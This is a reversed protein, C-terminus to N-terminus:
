SNETIDELLVKGDRADGAKYRLSKELELDFEKSEVTSVSYFRAISDEETITLTMYGRNKINAYAMHDLHNYYAQEVQEVKPLREGRGPSTIGPVAFEAGYHKGGMKDTLSMAWGCHTDGTLVIPNGSYKEFMDFVRRRAPQYGDWADPNYYVGFEEAVTMSLQEGESFGSMEEPSFVDSLPPEPRYSMIIQQGLIQWPINESVSKSLTEDLWKEQATGLLSREETELRKHFAAYDPKLSVGDPGDIEKQEVDLGYELPRERGVIRTDLMALTALKGFTFSRVTPLETMDVRVPMWEMFAKSAERRRATWDGEDDTHNLAGTAYSNNAFEHDDWACIFPYKRHVEQLDEDMRYLAYRRRYDSLTIIEHAPDSLRGIRKGVDAGYQGEDNGYEYIYDGLHLVADFPGNEAIARYGNFYGFPYNSCSAVALNVPETGGSNLTKVEGIVSYKEGVMFRYYHQTGAELGIVDQKVTYDREGDTTFSGSNIINAFSVDSAVQWNVGIQGTFDPEIPTVRTWIIMGDQLPDGSAVGHNFDVFVTNDKKDDTNACATVAFAAGVPISKLIGRRSVNIDKKTM